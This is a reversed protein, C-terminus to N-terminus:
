TKSYDNIYAVLNDMLLVIDLDKANGIQTNNIKSICDTFPAWNEFILGKNQKYLTKANVDDGARETTIARSVFIYADRFGCLSSKM